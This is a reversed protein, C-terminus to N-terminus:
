VDKLSSVTHAVPGRLFYPRQLVKQLPAGDTETTRSMEILMGRNREGATQGGTGSRTTSSLTLVQFQADSVAKNAPSRFRQRGNLSALLGNSFLKVQVLYFPFWLLDSRSFFLITLIISSVSTLLGTEISWLILTDAMRKTREFRTARIKRLWYCMAVVVVIDVTVGLSLAISMPWKLRESLEVINPNAWQVGMAAFNAAARFFTMVWCIIPIVLTGSLIRVRNAFFGQMLLSERYRQVIIYTLASFLITMDFSYPPTELHKPQCYFTVTLSYIAHWISITHGLELFCVAAVATKLWLSDKPYNRFYYFAQLTEIGFLYVALVGGIEIAGLTSDLAPIASASM